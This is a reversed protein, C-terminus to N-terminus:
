DAREQWASVAMLLNDYPKTEINLKCANNSCKLKWQIKCDLGLPYVIQPIAGCYACGNIDNISIKVEEM